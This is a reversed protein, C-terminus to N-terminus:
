IPKHHFYKVVLFLQFHKRISRCVRYAAFTMIPSLRWSAVFTILRCFDYPLLRLLRCVDYHSLHWLRCIDYHLLRWLPVFMMIRCVDYIIFTMLCCVDYNKTKYFFVGALTFQMISLHNPEIMKNAKGWPTLNTNGFGRIKKFVEQSQSFTEIWHSVYKQTKPASTKKLM